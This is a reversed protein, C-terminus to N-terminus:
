VVVAGKKVPEFNKAEVHYDLGAYKGEVVVVTIYGSRHVRVVRCKVHYDTVYYLGRKKSWVIQGVKLM